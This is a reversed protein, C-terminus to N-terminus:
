GDDSYRDAPFYKDEIKYKVYMYLLMFLLGTVLMAKESPTDPALRSRQALSVSQEMFMPDIDALVSQVVHEYFPIWIGLIIVADLGAPVEKVWHKVVRKLMAAM